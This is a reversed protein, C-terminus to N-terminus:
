DEQILYQAQPDPKGVYYVWEETGYGEYHVLYPKHERDDEITRANYDNAMQEINYKDSYYRTTSVQDTSILLGVISVLIVGALIVIIITMSSFVKDTNISKIAYVLTMGVIFTLVISVFGAILAIEWYNQIQTLRDLVSM